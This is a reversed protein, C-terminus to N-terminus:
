LRTSKREKDKLLPEIPGFGLIEAAVAEFLRAREVRSLIINEAELIQSFIEEVNRRVEDTKTLDLKPDLEAILKQQVRNKLELMNEQNSLGGPRRLDEAPAGVRGTTQRPLNTTQPAQAPMRGTQAPSSNSLNGTQRNGDGTGDLPGSGGIRKLLSM